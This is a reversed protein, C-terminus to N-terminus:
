NARKRVTRESRPCVWQYGPLVHVMGHVDHEDYGGDVRQLHVGIWQLECPVGYECAECAEPVSVVLGLAVAM